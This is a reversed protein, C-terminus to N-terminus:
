QREEMAYNGQTVADLSAKDANLDAAESETGDASKEGDSAKLIADVSADVQADKPNAAPSTTTAGNANAAVNAGATAGTTGPASTSAYDGSSADCGAGVLLLALAASLLLATGKSNRM